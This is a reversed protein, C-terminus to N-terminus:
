FSKALSLFTVQKNYKELPDNSSNNVSQFNLGITTEDWFKKSLTITLTTRFDKRINATGTALASKYGFREIDLDIKINSKWGLDRNWRGGFGVAKYARLVISNLNTYSLYTDWSKNLYQKFTVTHEYEKHTYIQHFRIPARSYELYTWGNDLGPTKWIFQNKLDWSSIYLTDKGGLFYFTKQQGLYYYSLDFIMRWYLTPKIRQRWGAGVIHGILNRAQNTAYDSAYYTYNMFFPSTQPVMWGFGTYFYFTALNDKTTPTKAPSFVANNDRRGSLYFHLDLTKKPQILKEYLNPNISSLLKQAAIAITDSTGSKIIKSLYNVAEENNGLKYYIKGIKYNVLDNIMPQLKGATEYLPIAEKNMDLALYVSALNYYVKHDKPYHDKAKELYEKASKYKELKFYALGLEQYIDTRTPDKKLLEKFMIVAEEYDGDHYYQRAAEELNKTTTINQTSSTDAGTYDIKKIVKVSIDDADFAICIILNLGPNLTVKTSFKRSLDDIDVVKNNILLKSTNKAIGSILVLKKSTKFDNKPETIILTAKSVPNGITETKGKYQEKIQGKIGQLEKTDISFAPLSISYVSGIILLILIVKKYKLVM